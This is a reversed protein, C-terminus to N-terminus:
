SMSRFSVRVRGNDLPLISARPAQSPESRNRIDRTIFHSPNSHQSKSKLSNTPIDQESQKHKVKKNGNYRKDIFVTNLIVSNHANLQGCVQEGTNSHRQHSRDNSQRNRYGSTDPGQPTVGPKTPPGPPIHRADPTAAPQALDQSRSPSPFEVQRPHNSPNISVPPINQRSNEATMILSPYLDGSWRNANKAPEDTRILDHLPSPEDLKPLVVQGPPLTLEDTRPFIYNWTSAARWSM